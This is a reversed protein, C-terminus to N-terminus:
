EGPSGPYVVMLGKEGSKSISNREDRAIVMFYFTTSYGKDAPKFTYSYFEGIKTFYSSTGKSFGVLTDTCNTASTGLTIAYQTNQRDKTDEYRWVLKIQLSDLREFSIDPEPPPEDPFVVFTLPIANISDDDKGWVRINRAVNGQLSNAIWVPLTTPGAINGNTDLEWYFEVIRGNSDTANVIIPVDLGKKIYFMTDLDIDTAAPKWQISDGFNAGSLVPRGMKVLISCTKSTVISDNDMVSTNVVIITDGYITDWFNIFTDTVTSSDDWAGDADWDVWRKVISGNADTTKLALKNTDNVWVEGPSFGSIVPSGKSVYVKKDYILSSQNDNDIVWVRITREGASSTDFRYGFSTTSEKVPPTLTCSDEAKNDGDWSVFVQNVTGNTDSAHVVLNFSDNVYLSDEPYQVSVSDIVPIASRVLVSDLYSQSQLNLSDIVKFYIRKWGSTSYSLNLTSDTMPTYNEGDHSYLYQAIGKNKGVDEAIVRFTYTENIYVIDPKIVEKIVPNNSLVTVQFVQPKVAYEDLVNICNVKIIFTGTDEFVKEIFNSDTEMDFITDNDLYWFYKSIEHPHLDLIATLRVSDRAYVTKKITGPNFVPKETIVEIKLTDYNSIVGYSDIAWAILYHVGKDRFRYGWLEDASMSESITTDPQIVKYFVSDIRANDPDPSRVTVRFDVSDNLKLTSDKEIEFYCEPQYIRTKVNRILSLTSDMSSSDNGVIAKVEISFSRVSDEFFLYLASSDENLSDRFGEPYSWIYRVSDSGLVRKLADVVRVEWSYWKMIRIESPIPKVEELVYKSIKAKYVLTDTNGKVFSYNIGTVCIKHWLTDMIPSLEISNRKTGKIMASDDIVWLFSDAEGSAVFQLSDGYQFIVTDSTSMFEVEPITYLIKQDTIIKPISILGSQDRAIISLSTPITDSIPVDCIITVRNGTASQPSSTLLRNHATAFVTFFIAGTDDDSFDIDIVPAEGMRLSDRLFASEIMPAEGEFRVMFPTLQYNGNENCITANVEITDSNEYRLSFRDTISITDLLGSSVDWIVTLTSDITESDNRSIHLKAPVNRGVVTDGTIRYPNDVIIDIEYIDKKLNPRTAVVSLKGSFPKLFVLRTNNKQDSEAKFLVPPETIVEFRYYKDKGTDEITISYPKLIEATDTDLGNWNVSYKYDGDDSIVPNDQERSCFIFVATLLAVLCLYDATFGNIQLMSRM